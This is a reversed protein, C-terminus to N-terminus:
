RLRDVKMEKAIRLVEEASQGNAACEHIINMLRVHNRALSDFRIVWGIIERRRESDIIESEKGMVIEAIQLYRKEASRSKFKGVYIAYTRDPVYEIDSARSCEEPTNEDDAVYGIIEDDLCVILKAASQGELEKREIKFIEREGFWERPSDMLGTDFAILNEKGIKRLRKLFEKEVSDDHNQEDPKQKFDHDSIKAIHYEDGYKLLYEAWAVDPIRIDGAKSTLSCATLEANAVYGIKRDNFYVAIADKDHINDPEKVLKLKMGQRLDGTNYLHTGAITILKEKPYRKIISEQQSKLKEQQKKRRKMNENLKTQNNRNMLAEIKGKLGISERKLSMLSAYESCKENGLCDDIESIIDNLMNMADRLNSNNDSLESNVIYRVRNIKQSADTRVHFSDDRQEYDYSGGGCFGCADGEDVWSGCNPCFGMFDGSTIYNIHKKGYINKAM